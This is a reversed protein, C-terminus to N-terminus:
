AAPLSSAPLSSAPLSSAPLSSAPLSSCGGAGPGAPAQPERAPKRWDPSWGTSPSESPRTGSVEDATFGHDAGDVVQLTTDTSAVTQLFITSVEPDVVDDDSGVLALVPGTYGGVDDLPHSSEITDFWNLGLKFIRDGLDVPM